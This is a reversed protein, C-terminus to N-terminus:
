RESADVIAFWARVKDDKAHDPDAEIEARSFPQYKATEWRHGNVEHMEKGVVWHPWRMMAAVEACVRQSSGEPDIRDRREMWRDHSARQEPTWATPCVDRWGIGALEAALERLEESLRM